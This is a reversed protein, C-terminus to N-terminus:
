PAQVQLRERRARRFGRRMKAVTIGQPDRHVLRSAARFRGVAARDLGLHFDIQALLVQISSDQPMLEAARQASARADALRDLAQQAAALQAYASASWPEAAVASQAYDVAHATRGAAVLSASDRSLETSAIGPVM